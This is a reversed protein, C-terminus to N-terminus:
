RPLDTFLHARTLHNGTLVAHSLGQHSLRNAVAPDFQSAAKAAPREPSRAMQKARPQSQSMTMMQVSSNAAAITRMEPEEPQWGTLLLMLTIVISFLLRFGIVKFIAQGWASFRPLREEPEEIPSLM